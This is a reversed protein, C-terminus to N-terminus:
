PAGMTCSGATRRLKYGRALLVAEVGDVNGFHAMGIAVLSPKIQKPLSELRTLMDKTRQVVVAAVYADSQGIRLAANLKQTSAVTWDGTKFMENMDDAAIYVQSQMKRDDFLALLYAAHAAVQAPSIAMHAAAATDAQELYYEALGNEVAHAHLLSEFPPGFLDWGHQMLIYLDVRSKLISLFHAPHMGLRNATSAFKRPYVRPMVKDSLDDLRALQAPAVLQRREKNESISFNLLNFKKDDELNSETVVAGIEPLCRLTAKLRARMVENTQHITPLFLITQGSKTAVLFNYPKPVAAYSPACVFFFAFLLIIHRMPYISKM